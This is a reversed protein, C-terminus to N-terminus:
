LFAKMKFVKCCFEFSGQALPKDIGPIFLYRSELCYVISCKICYLRKRTSVTIECSCSPCIYEPMHMIILVSM